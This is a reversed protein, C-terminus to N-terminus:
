QPYRRRYEVLPVLEGTKPDGTIHEMAGTRTDIRIWAGGGGSVLQYRGNDSCGGVGAAVVAIVAVFLAKREM